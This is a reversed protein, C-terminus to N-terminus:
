LKPEKFTQGQSDTWELYLKGNTDVEHEDPHYTFKPAVVEEVSTEEVEEVQTEDEGETPVKKPRAM